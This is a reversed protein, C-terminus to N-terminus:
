EQFLIPRVEVAGYAAAPVKAGWAIAEDTQAPDVFDGDGLQHHTVEDLEGRRVRLEMPDDHLLAFACTSTEVPHDFRVHPRQVLVRSRHELPEGRPGVVSLVTGTVLPVTYTKANINRIEYDNPPPETLDKCNPDTSPYM